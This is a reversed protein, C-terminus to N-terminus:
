YNTSKQAFDMWAFFILLISFTGDGKTDLVRIAFKMYKIAFM